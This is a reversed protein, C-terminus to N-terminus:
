LKLLQQWIANKISLIEKEYKQEADVEIVTSLPFKLTKVIDHKRKIIEINDDPRRRRSEEPSLILKFVLDPSKRVATALIREEWKVFIVALWKLKKPVRPLLMTRIKPGDNIGQYEIQPYRDFLAVGGNSSYSAARKITKRVYKASALQYSFSLWIRLLKYLKNNNNIRKILRKQWPNYYEDGSGLYFRRADLKWSLWNRIESTVTSKGSGDQGLFAISIGYGSIPVKKSIVPHFLEEVRQGWRKYTFFVKERLRVFHKIRSNNKFSVETITRLKLLDSAEFFPKDIIELVTAARDNYFTDVLHKVKRMDVREKLWDIEQKTDGSLKYNGKRCKSITKFDAKLGIRTYLTVLELNPEMIYVDFEKYLVRTKLALDAWPLEYEKMGKHGTVLEYHLHLHILNGTEKDFGIWDDVNPYRSGFQSKVQLFELKHLINIGERKDDRSLLVDLDTKGDLGPQLHENSKWHCYSLNAKNWASFLDRSINHM